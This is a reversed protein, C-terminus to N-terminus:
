ESFLEGNSKSSCFQCPLYVPIVGCRKGKHPHTSQGGYVRRGVVRKAYQVPIRREGEQVAIVGVIVVLAFVAFIIVTFINTSGVKIMQILQYISGPLRSVIGAFDFTIHWKLEKDTIQESVVDSFSNLQLNCDGAATGLFGLTRLHEELDM